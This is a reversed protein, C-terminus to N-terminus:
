KWYYKQMLGFLNNKAFRVIKNESQFKKDLMSFHNGAVPFESYLKRHRNYITVLSELQKMRNSKRKGSRYTSPDPYSRYFVLPEEIKVVERGLEIIQLWFDWDELGYKLEDSYGETALWDAKQFFANSVIRNDLLMAELSYEQTIFKGSRAGFFEVDTYLIGVGPNSKFIAYAKELLEPAIRDDADLNMIIPASANRIAKNRASAPGNNETHVIKVNDYSINNLIEATNDTSGDNVIIVEFNRFTQDMVSELMEGIYTGHNYCATIISIEPQKKLINMIIIQSDAM